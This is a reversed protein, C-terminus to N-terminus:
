ERPSTLLLEEIDDIAGLAIRTGLRVRGSARRAPTFKLISFAALVGVPRVSRDNRSPAPPM